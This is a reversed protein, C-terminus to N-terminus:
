IKSLNPDGQNFGRFVITPVFKPNPANKFATLPFLTQLVVAQEVSASLDVKQRDIQQQVAELTFAQNAQVASAEKMEQDPEEETTKAPSAMPPNFETAM